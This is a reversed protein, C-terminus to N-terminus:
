YLDWIVMLLKIVCTRVRSTRECLECIVSRIDCGAFLRGIQKGEPVCSGLECSFVKKEIV